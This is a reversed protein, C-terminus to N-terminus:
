FVSKVASYCHQNEEEEEKMNEEEKKKKSKSVPDQWIAWALRRKCCDEQRLKEFELIIIGGYGAKM